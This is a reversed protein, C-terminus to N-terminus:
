RSDGQVSHRFDRWGLIADDRGSQLQAFLAERAEDSLARDGDVEVRVQDVQVGCIHLQGVLIDVSDASVLDRGDEFVALYGGSADGALRILVERGRCRDALQLHMTMCLEQRM